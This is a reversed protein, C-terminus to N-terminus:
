WKNLPCHATIVKTKALLRCGCGKKYGDKQKVSIDGTLPNLWLKSNCTGGLKPSYLPCSHCIKLRQSSIDKNLGLVENVHGTIIQGVEM